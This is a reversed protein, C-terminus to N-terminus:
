AQTGSTYRDLILTPETDGGEDWGDWSIDVDVSTVPEDDPMRSFWQVQAEPDISPLSGGPADAGLVNPAAAMHASSVLEVPDVLTDV